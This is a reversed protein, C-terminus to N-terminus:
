NIINQLKGFVYLLLGIFSISAAITLSRDAYLPQMNYRSFVMRAAGCLALGLMVGAIVDPWQQAFYLRAIGVLLIPISVLSYILWRKHLRVEQAIFAAILGFLITTRVISADPVLNNLQSHNTEILQNNIAPWNQLALILLDAMIFTSLCILAAATHRKFLLWGVSIIVMFYYPENDTLSNIAQFFLTLWPHHIAHFSIIITQNFSAMIFHNPPLWALLLFSSIGIIFLMFSNLPFTKNLRQNLFWNWCAQSYPHYKSFQLITLYAKSKYNFQWHFIRIVLLITLFTITIIGAIFSIEKPFELGWSVSQGFLYGPLVYTPAWAIASLINIVMFRLASMDLMGAIMPIIPRLPGIFRGIIISKGGHRAFFEEGNNIWEPHKRFPWVERIQQKFIKGLFFSTVDGLVAGIFACCLTPVIGLAGSGAIASAGFLLLVGPIIVGALALSEFFAILIITIPLWQQHLSLWDLAPQITSLDM